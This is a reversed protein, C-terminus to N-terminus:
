TQGAQLLAIEGLGLHIKHLGQLEVIRLNIALGFEVKADIRASARCGVESVRFPLETLDSPCARQDVLSDPSRGFRTM